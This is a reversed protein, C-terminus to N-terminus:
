ATLYGARLTKVDEATLGLGVRVYDDFSGYVQVAAKLAAHIYSAKLSLDAQDQTFGLSKYRKTYDVLVDHNFTNSDLYDDVADSDAAGLLRLLVYAAWGTRDDGVSCHFLVPKGQAQVIEAFLKRYAYTPRPAGGLEANMGLYGGSAYGMLEFTKAEDLASVVGTAYPDEPDFVSDSVHQVGPPLRDPHHAVEDPTRLDIVKSLDLRAVMALESDSLDSMSDGRFLLGPKVRKGDGTRYGGLDRLNPANVLGLGQTSVVVIDGRTRRLHFYWRQNPDLGRVRISGSASGSGVTKGAVTSDPDNSAVVTIQSRGGRWSVTYVGSEFTVSADLVAAPRGPVHSAHATQGAAVSRQDADAASTGITLGATSLACLSLAFVLNRKRKPM